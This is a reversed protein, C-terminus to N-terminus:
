FLGMSIAAAQLPSVNEPRDYVINHLNANMQMLSYLLSGPPSAMLSKPM